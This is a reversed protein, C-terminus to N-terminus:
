KHKGTLVKEQKHEYKQPPLKSICKRLSCYQLIAMNQFANKSPAIKLTGMNQFANKLPSIMKIKQNM